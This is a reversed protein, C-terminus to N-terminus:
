RRSFEQFTYRLDNEHLDPSQYSKQFGFFQPPFFTDCHFDKQIQTLFIKLCHPHQLAQQYVKAGGIVYIQNVEPNKLVNRLGFAEELSSVKFVGKPLTLNRNQTLVCNLREPLPKYREPLSDWTTRGMIVLNKKELSATKTTLERFHKLDASLHWPIQGDKAIGFQSDVAVIINFGTPM